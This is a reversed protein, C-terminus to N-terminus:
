VVSVVRRSSSSKKIRAQSPTLKATRRKRQHRKRGLRAFQSPRRRKCLEPIDAGILLRDIGDLIDAVGLFRTVLEDLVCEPSHEKGTEAALESTVSENRMSRPGVYLWWLVSLRVTSTTLRRVSEAYAGKARIDEGGSVKKSGTKYFFSIVCDTVVVRNRSM